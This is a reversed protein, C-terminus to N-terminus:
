KGRLKGRRICWNMHDNSGRIYTNHLSTTSDCIERLLDILIGTRRLATKRLLLCRGNQHNNCGAAGITIIARFRQAKETDWAAGQNVIRFDWVRCWVTTRETQMLIKHNTEIKHLLKMQNPQGSKTSTWHTSADIIRWDKVMMSRRILTLPNNTKFHSQKRSFVVTTPIITPTWKQPQRLM